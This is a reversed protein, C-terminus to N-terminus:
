YRSFKQLSCLTSTNKTHYIFFNLNNCFMFFIKISNTNCQTECIYISYNSTM